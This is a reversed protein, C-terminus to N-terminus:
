CPKGRNLLETSDVEGAERIQGPGEDIADGRHKHVAEVFEAVALELLCGDFEMAFGIGSLLTV